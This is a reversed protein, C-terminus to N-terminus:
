SNLVESYVVNSVPDHQGQQKKIVAFKLQAPSGVRSCAVYLQGHAFVPSRLWVGVFKLTQGLFINISVSKFAHLIHQIFIYLMM